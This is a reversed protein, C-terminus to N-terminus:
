PLMNRETPPPEAIVGMWGEGMSPSPGEIARETAEEGKIPSALHPHHELRKLMTM